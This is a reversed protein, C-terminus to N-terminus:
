WPRFVSCGYCYLPVDACCSSISGSLTISCVSNTFFENESFHFTLTFSTFSDDYACTIDTLHEIAPIDEETILEGISPHSTLCTLWFGPIGKIDSKEETEDGKEGAEEAEVPVEVEGSVIQRRQEIVTAKKELYKKELAIREEKYAKEIDEYDNHLNRIKTVRALIEKPLNALEDDEEDDDEDEEEESEEEEQAPASKGRPKWAQQQGTLIFLTM